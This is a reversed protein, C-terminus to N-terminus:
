TWLAVEPTNVESCNLESSMGCAVGGGAASFSVVLLLLAGLRVFKGAFAGDTGAVTGSWLVAKFEASM